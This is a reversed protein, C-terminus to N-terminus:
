IQRWEPQRTHTQNSLVHNYLTQYIIFALNCGRLSTSEHPTEFHIVPGPSRNCTLPQHPSPTLAPAWTEGQSVPSTYHKGSVPLGPPPAPGQLCITSPIQERLHRLQTEPSCSFVIGLCVLLFATVVHISVQVWSCVFWGM